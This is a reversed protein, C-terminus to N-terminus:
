RLFIKAELRVPLTSRRRVRMVSAPHKEGFTDSRWGEILENDDPLVLRARAELSGLHWLQEVDHEGPPGDIEDTILILDPKQFEVRRRHTFGAYGCEAELLDRESNTKWSQIGVEPRTAWRFPGAAVAQDRGDVVVTNHAHTGRFWNRWKEDGVYTFTGPDILIEEDGSRVVISLTDAHSHGAGWPGFPGADVVIHNLGATMVAIGSDSFLRSASKAGDPILAGKALPQRLAEAQGRVLDGTSSAEHRRDRNQDPAGLWWLAQPQLDDADLLWDPRDLVVSATAMTARGFRDRRGYPHFLRGGDDDGIMALTRSPGLLAHLYEAMRELKNMYPSDPKALIAQFLFMDLAYVHYYTSQEFHSGDAHIQREMQERTVKAGLHDWHGAKPLGTFFLGLAHLAVAEGLLHTNPSFYFSLNNELHWAHRYLQRLWNARLEAPLKGGVLHYVWMWSLARFAVELASAWNIGRHFPNAAFWSELQARIETLNSEDGTFLYAQALIVLHQHRNLEWIMKHDGARRADLYAIRRFYSLGTEIGSLHDRRWPVQPGTDITLGLIPFRHRRIQVALGIVEREFSTDSLKTIIAAPQPLSLGHTFKPDFQFAPPNAFAHVNKLEQRLRVAIERLSRLKAM